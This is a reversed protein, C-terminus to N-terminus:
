SWIELIFGTVHIDDSFGYDYSFSRTEKLPLNFYICFSSFQYNILFLKYCNQM